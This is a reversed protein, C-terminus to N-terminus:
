AHLSIGIVLRKSLHELGDGLRRGHVVRNRVRHGHIARDLPNALGRRGAPPTREGSFGWWACTWAWSFWAASRHLRAATAWGPPQLRPGAQRTVADWLPEIRRVEDVVPAHLRQADGRTGHRGGRVGRGASSPANPNGLLELGARRDVVHNQRIHESAVQDVASRELRIALEVSTPVERLDAVAPLSGQGIAGEARTGPVPAILDALATTAQIM